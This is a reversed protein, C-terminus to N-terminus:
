MGAQTPPKVKIDTGLRQLYAILAIIEKDATAEIGTQKLNAVIQRRRRLSTPTPASTMGSPIRCAWRRCRAFRPSRHSATDLTRTLLWPFPPM